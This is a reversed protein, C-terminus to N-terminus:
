ICIARLCTSATVASIIAAKFRNTQVILALTSYSGYSQGMVALRDPDAIGLEIVKNVGPLITSALDKLPAGKRLPADPYLTAYGRTALVQMNFSPMTGWFGFHNVYDSLYSGGYTIVVLPYRIGEKYGAPLLM